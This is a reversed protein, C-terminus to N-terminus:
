GRAMRARHWRFLLPALVHDYLATAVWHVGPLSVMRALWRYKPMECWLVIFAPIGDYLTGDKLVHLRRAADERTLGWAAMDAGHLDEYRVPIEETQTYRAYHDNERSCVPCDANYLVTTTSKTHTM